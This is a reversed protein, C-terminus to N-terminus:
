EKSFGCRWCVGNKLNPPKSPKDYYLLDRQYRASCIPCPTPKKKETKKQGM